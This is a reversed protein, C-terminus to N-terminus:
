HKRRHSPWRMRETTNKLARELSGRDYHGTTGLSVHGAIRQLDSGPVGTAFGNTLFTHRFDRFNFDKIGAQEARRHRILQLAATSLRPPKGDKREHVINGGKNVPLFLSGPANGRLAMWEDLSEKVVGAARITRRKDGKGHRVILDGTAPDYDSLMLASVDGVRPGQTIGLGLIADDRVGAPSPDDACVRALANLEDDSLCRGTLHTQDISISRVLSLQTWAQSDIMGQLACQRLVGRVAAFVKAATKSSYYKLLSAKLAEMAPADVTPWGFSFVADEAVEKTEIGQAAALACRLASLMSRKSANSRLSNLYSQVPHRHIEHQLQNSM